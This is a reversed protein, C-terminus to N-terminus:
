STDEKGEESEYEFRRKNVIVTQGNDNLIRIHTAEDLGCKFRTIVGSRYMTGKVDYEKGETLTTSPSVCKAIM